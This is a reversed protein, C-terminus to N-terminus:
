EGETLWWKEFTPICFWGCVPSSQVSHLINEKGVLVGLLSHVEFTTHLLSKCQPIKLHSNQQASLIARKNPVIAGERRPSSSSCRRAHLSAACRVRLVAAETITDRLDPQMWCLYVDTTSRLPPTPRRLGFSLERLLKARHSFARGGMRLKSSTSIM